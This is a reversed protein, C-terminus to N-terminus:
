YINSQNQYKNNKLTNTFKIKELKFVINSHGWTIGKTLKLLEKITFKCYISFKWCTDKVCWVCVYVYVFVSVGVSVCVSVCVCVCVCVCVFMCQCLFVTGFYIQIFFCIHNKNSVDTVYMFTPKKVFIIKIRLLLNKSKLFTKSKETM